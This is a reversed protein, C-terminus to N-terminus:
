LNALTQIPIKVRKNKLVLQNFFFCSAGGVLTFMIALPIQNRASIFSIIGSLLAGGLIQLCGFVAGVVGLKNNFLTFIGASANSFILEIGFVFLMVPLIVVLVNIFGFMALIWMSIGSSFICINGILVMKNISLRRVFFINILLSVIQSSSLAIFLWGFQISNLGMTNQFLFPALTMYASIGGYALTACITYGLFEKNYFVQQYQNLTRRLSFNKKDCHHNTEPLYFFMVVLIISTYTFLALFSIRWSTYFQIYGGIAPALVLVIATAISIWSGVSALQEGKFLDRLIPRGVAGCAGLGVGQFFRGILIFYINPAIVCLLCGCVGLMIGILLPRRRGHRDIIPGYFPHSIAFGLIYVTFTLQILYNECHFTEAISPMSSLNMDAAIQSLTIILLVLWFLKTLIVIKIDIYLFNM